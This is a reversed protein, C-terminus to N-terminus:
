LCSAFWSGIVPGVTETERRDESHSPTAERVRHYWRQRVDVLTKTIVKHCKTITLYETLYNMVQYERPNTVTV